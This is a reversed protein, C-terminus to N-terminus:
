AKRSIQEREAAATQTLRMAEQWLCYADWAAGSDLLAKCTYVGEEVSSVREALELRVAGNLLVQNVFAPHAEGRLVAETVRLQQQASWPTNAEPLPTDLGYTEPDIVRLKASGQDVVYTRTPRDIFLDESGQTGQVILARRYDLEQILQAIRDFVTNHYIGYVLCPSQSFDLLKEITNLISRLGLEERIPRLRALPPCWVEAPVFRVGAATVACGPRVGAVEAASAPRVGVMEAAGGSRAAGAPQAAAPPEMKEAHIGMEGLLDSLTVGWKPPLSKTGHLTVPLECAALLFSTAFTAMFSNTRGDYPGACDLGGPVESRHAHRRFVTVFAKLEDVSELKIRQAMFFAGIQAPSADGNVILEAAALAEEYNLDRAGRKGRGVEKLIDTMLM